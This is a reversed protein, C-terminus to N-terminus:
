GLETDRDKTQQKQGRSDVEKAVEDYAVAGRGHRDYGFISKGAAPAEALKSSAPIACGFVNVSDGYEASIERHIGKAMTTRADYLTVLIGELELGPNMKRRVREVSKFLDGMGELPMYQAELPVLVSDAAALANVTLMGLSPGCDLLVYDYGARVDEVWGSLLMERCMVSVMALETAALSLNSPMLDVGEGSHLMGEMPSLGGDGMAANFHTAITVPLSAKDRWGLAYTLNGQPDLDVLLVRKGRRALGVGLNVATTTKGVGGKQNAVAIVRGRRANSEGLALTNEARVVREIRGNM